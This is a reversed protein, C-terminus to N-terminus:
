ILPVVSVFNSNRNQTRLNSQFSLFKANNIIIIMEQRRNILNHNVTNHFM